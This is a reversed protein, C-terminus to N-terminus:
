GHRETYGAGQLNLLDIQHLRYEKALHEALEEGLKAIPFYKNKMKRSGLIRWHACFYHCGNVFCRTVGTFGTKNASSLKCNRANIEKTALRLNDVRNDTADGNIHDILMGKPIEGNFLEWIVRHAMHVKQKYKVKWRKYEKRTTQLTGAADGANVKFAKGGFLGRYPVSIKWRLCSPSSEDYYFIDEM